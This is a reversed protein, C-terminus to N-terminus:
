RTYVRGITNRENDSGEMKEIGVSVKCQLGIWSGDLNISARQGCAPCLYHYSGKVKEKVFADSSTKACNGCTWEAKLANVTDFLRSLDHNMGNERKGGAMIYYWGNMGPLDRGAYEGEDIQFQLCIMPAGTKTSFKTDEALVVCPYPPNSADTKPLTAIQEASELSASLQPM